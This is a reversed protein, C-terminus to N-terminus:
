RSRSTVVARTRAWLTSTLLQLSDRPREMVDWVSGDIEVQDCLGLVAEHAVNVDRRALADGKLQICKDSLRVVRHLVFRGTPLRALVVEGNRPQRGALPVIRVAAMAPIAPRMSEGRVRIWIAFGRGIADGLLTEFDREDVSLASREAGASGHASADLWRWQRYVWGAGRAMFARLAERRNRGPVPPFIRGKFTLFRNRFGDALKLLRVVRNLDGSSRQARVIEVSSELIGRSALELHKALSLAWDLHAGLGYDHAASKSAAREEDSLQTWLFHFDVLWLLPPSDHKALHVALYPALLPGSFVPLPHERVSIETAEVPLTLHALLPDDLLLSHLELFNVHGNRLCEFTEEDPPEGTTSSWGLAALARSADERESAPVWLDIDGLPRHTIDGYLRASLPAGKVVVPSLGRHRMEDVVEVLLSFQAETRLEIGIARKRWAAVIEPPALRRIVDGARQWILGVLRDREARALLADWSVSSVKDVGPALVLRALWGVAVAETPYSRSKIQGLPM